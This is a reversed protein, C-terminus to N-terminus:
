RRTSVGHIPCDPAYESCGFVKSCTCGQPPLPQGAIIEQGAVFPPKNNFTPCYDRFDYNETAKLIYLPGREKLLTNIGVSWPGTSIATTAMGNGYEPCLYWVVGQSDMVYTPDDGVPPWNPQPSEEPTGQYPQTM